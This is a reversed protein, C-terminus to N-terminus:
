VKLSCLLKSMSLFFTIEVVIINKTITAAIIPKLDINPSYISYKGKDLSVKLKNM